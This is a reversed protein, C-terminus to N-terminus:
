HYCHCSDYLYLSTFVTLFHRVRMIIKNLDVKDQSLGDSTLKMKDLSDQLNVTDSRSKTVEAELESKDVAAQCLREDTLVYV